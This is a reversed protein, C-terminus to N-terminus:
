PRPTAQYLTWAEPFGKLEHTGVNKFEHTTGILMERITATVYISNPQAAQEVRSALNVVAGSIDDDSQEVLGAHIGIRLPMGLENMTSSLRVAANVAQDPRDFLALHGDGTQKVVTGGNDSIVGTATQDHHKLRQQWEADGISLSSRTSDVLDTFM